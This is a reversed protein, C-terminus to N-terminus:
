QELDIEVENHGLGFVLMVTNIAYRVLGWYVFFDIIRLYLNYLDQFEEKQNIWDYPSWFFSNIVVTEEVGTMSPVKIDPITVGWYETANAVIDMITRVLNPFFMLVDWLFGLKEQFFDSFRQWLGPNELDENYFYDADPVFLGFIGDIILKPLNIIAQWIGTIGGTLDTDGGDPNTVIGGTDGSPYNGSVDKQLFFNPLDEVYYRLRFSNSTMFNSINYDADFWESTLLSPTDSTGIGISYINDGSFVNFLNTIQYTSLPGQNPKSIEKWEYGSGVQWEGYQDLIVGYRLLYMSYDSINTEFDRVEFYDENLIIDGSLYNSNESWYNTKNYEQKNLYITKSTNLIPGNYYLCYKSILSQLYENSGYDEENYGQNLYEQISSLKYFFTLGYSGSSNLIENNQIDIVFGKTGSLRIGYNTDITRIYSSTSTNSGCTVYTNGNNMPLLAVSYNTNNLYNLMNNTDTYTSIDIDNRGYYNNLIENYFSIPKLNYEFTSEISIINDTSEVAQVECSSLLCFCAILGLFLLIKDQQTLDKFLLRIQSFLDKM